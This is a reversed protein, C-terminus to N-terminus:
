QNLSTFMHSLVHWYGPDNKKHTLPHLILLSRSKYGSKNNEVGSLSLRKANGGLEDLEEFVERITFITVGSAGCGLSTSPNLRRLITVRSAELTGGVAAM